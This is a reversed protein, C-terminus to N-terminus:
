DLLKLRVPGRAGQIDPVPKGHQTAVIDGSVIMEQAVLRVLDLRERWDTPFLERAVESPCFSKDKGRQKALSLIVQRIKSAEIM